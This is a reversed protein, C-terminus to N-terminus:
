NTRNVYYTATATAVPTDERQDVWLGCVVSAITFGSKDVHARCYLTNGVKGPTLYTVNMQITPTMRGGSFYRSVLGMTTDAVTAIMGGHINGNPNAMWHDIRLAITITREEYECDVIRFNLMDNMTGGCAKPLEEMYYQCYREMGEQDHLMDEPINIM